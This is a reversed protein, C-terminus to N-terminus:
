ECTDMANSLILFDAFDIYGSHDFDGQEWNGNTEYNTSLILFDEFDTCGDLNADGPHGVKVRLKSQSAINATRFSKPYDPATNADWAKSDTPFHGSGTGGVSYMTMDLTDGDWNWYSFAPPRLAVFEITLALVEQRKGVGWVGWRPPNGATGSVNEPRKHTNVIYVGNLGGNVVKKYTFEPGKTFSNFVVDMLIAPLGAHVEALGDYANDTAYVNMRYRVGKVLVRTDGSFPVPTGDMYTIEPRMTLEAAEVSGLGCLLVAIPLVLKLSKYNM